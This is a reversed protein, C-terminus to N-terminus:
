GRMQADRFREEMYAQAIAVPLHVGDDDLQACNQTQGNVESPSDRLKEACKRLAFASVASHQGMRETKRDDGKDNGCNGRKKQRLNNAFMKLVQMNHADREHNAAHNHPNHIRYIGTELFEAGASRSAANM